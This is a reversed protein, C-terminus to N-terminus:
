LAVLLPAQVMPLPLSELLSTVMPVSADVLIVDPTQLLALLLLVCTTLPLVITVVSVLRALAIDTVLLLFIQPPSLLAFLMPLTGADLLLPLIPIMWNTVAPDIAILSIAGDLPVFVVLVWILISAPSTTVLVDSTLVVILRTLLLHSV